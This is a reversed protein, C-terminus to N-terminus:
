WRWNEPLQLYLSDAYEEDILARHVEGTSRQQMARHKARCYSLLTTLHRITEALDEPTMADPNLQELAYPFNRPELM